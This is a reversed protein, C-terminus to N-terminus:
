DVELMSHEIVAYRDDFGAVNRVESEIAALWDSRPMSIALDYRQAFRGVWGLLRVLMREQADLEKRIYKVEYDDAANARSAASAIADDLDGIKDVLGLDLADL